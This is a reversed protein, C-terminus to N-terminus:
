LYQSIVPTALNQRNIGGPHATAQHMSGNKFINLIIVTNKAAPGTPYHSHIFVRNFAINEFVGRIISVTLYDIPYIVFSKKYYIPFRFKRKEHKFITPGFVVTKVFFCRGHPM